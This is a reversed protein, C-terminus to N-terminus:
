FHKVYTILITVSVTLPFFQSITTSILAGLYLSLKSRLFSMTPLLDKEIGRGEKLLKTVFTEVDHNLELLVNPMEDKLPWFRLRFLNILISVAPAM